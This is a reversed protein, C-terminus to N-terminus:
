DKLEEGDTGSQPLHGPSPFPLGSWYEQRPFRLSLVPQARTELTGAGSDKWHCGLTSM